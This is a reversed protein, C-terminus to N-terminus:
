SAKKVRDTRYASIRGPQLIFVQNNLLSVTAKKSVKLSDLSKYVWIDVSSRTYGANHNFEIFSM